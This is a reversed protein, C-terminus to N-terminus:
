TNDPKKPLPFPPNKEQGANWAPSDSAPFSEKSAEEVPDDPVVVSQLEPQHEKKFVRKTRHKAMLQGQNCEQQLVTQFAISLPSCREIRVIM